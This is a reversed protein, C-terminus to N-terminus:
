VCRRETATEEPLQIPGASVSAAPPDSQTEPARKYRSKHLASLQSPAIM